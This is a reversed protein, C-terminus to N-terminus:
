RQGMLWMVRERELSMTQVVCTISFNWLDKLKHPLNNQIIASCYSTLTITENNELKRKNSLIYKLLKVYIHMQSLANTFPFNIHIKKLLEIFKKLQAEIKAKVLRQPFPITPKNPSPYVYPEM